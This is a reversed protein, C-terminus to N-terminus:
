FKMFLNFYWILPDEYKYINKGVRSAFSSDLFNICEEIALITEGMIYINFVVNIAGYWYRKRISPLGM